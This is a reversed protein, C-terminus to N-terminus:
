IRPRGAAEEAAPGREAISAAAASRLPRAWGTKGGGRRGRVGGFPRFLLRPESINSLHFLVDLKTGM